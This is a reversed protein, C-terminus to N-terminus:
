RRMQQFSAVTYSWSQCLSTNEFIIKKRSLPTNIRTFFTIRREFHLCVPLLFFVTFLCFFYDFSLSVCSSPIYLVCCLILFVFLFKFSNRGCFVSSHRLLLIKRESIIKLRKKKDNQGNWLSPFVNKWNWRRINKM